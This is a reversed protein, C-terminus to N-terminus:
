RSIQLTATYLAMPDDTIEEQLVQLLADKLSFVYVGTERPSYGQRARSISIGSLIEIVPEFDQSEAHALNQDNLTALLSDLLENSQQRLEENSMLDERLTEDALQNKMWLELVQKKKKSLIKPVNAKM